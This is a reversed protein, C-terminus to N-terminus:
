GDSRLRRPVVVTTINCVVPPAPTPLRALPLADCVDAVVTPSLPEALSRELQAARLAPITPVSRLPATLHHELTWSQLPRQAHWVCDLLVLLGCRALGHM